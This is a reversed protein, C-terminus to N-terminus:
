WAKRGGHGLTCHTPFNLHEIAEDCIREYEEKSYHRGNIEVSGDANFTSQNGSGITGYKYARLIDTIRNRAEADSWNNFQAKLLQIAQPETMKGYLVDKMERMWTEVSM